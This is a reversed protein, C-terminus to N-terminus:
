GGTTLQLALMQLDDQRYIRRNVAGHVRAAWRSPIAQLGFSAGALGGTVCAVTDVDGGVDCAQRMAAQFSAARRLIRVAQALCGWVTSNAPEDTAGVHPMLLSRYRAAHPAPLHDLLGPLAELAPEDRVAARIMGHYLAVGWGAAPDGHTLASHAQALAFSSALDGGAAFLASTTARMLSGNGAARGTLKFHRAAADPSGGDCLVARTQGGVDKATAAWARFRALLDVGDFGGRDILSEALVIAMQTDDTFEGPAWGFGGGGIMEDADPGPMSAPFRRSFQRAPGFEFPAGLADGVASGILAGVARERSVVTM